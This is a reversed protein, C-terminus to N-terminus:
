EIRRYFRQVSRGTESDYEVLEASFDSDECIVENVTKITEYFFASVPYCNERMHMVAPCADVRLIMENELLEICIKGSEIKYIKEFHEKLAALGCKQLQKRLPAYFTLTFRRLYDRIAQEGYQDVLYDLGASLAGHFDKHLYENDSARCEKKLTM